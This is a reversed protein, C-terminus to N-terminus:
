RGTAKVLALNRRIQTPRTPSRYRHRLISPIKAPQSFATRAASKDTLWKLLPQDLKGGDAAAAQVQQDWDQAFRKFDDPRIRGRCSPDGCLCRFPAELNLSGYDSTLQEGEEIDRIALDFNWGTSMNNPNCSHNVWRGLDWCLIWDGSANPFAYHELLKLYGKDLRALETPGFKQDLADLTWMVTGRPIRKTAFVGLGISEDVVRLETHPHIM